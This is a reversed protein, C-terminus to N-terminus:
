HQGARLEDGDFGLHQASRSAGRRHRRHENCPDHRRPCLPDCRLRGRDAPLRDGLGNRRCAWADGAGARAHQWQGNDCGAESDYFWVGGPTRREPHQWRSQDSSVEGRRVDEPLRRDLRSFSGSVNVTANPGFVVGSPNILYLNAGTINSQIKGDISSGSGGTVRSIVNSIPGTSGASTFTASEPTPTHSLSFQGFSQFLNSAVQKGLNASISYNPGVLTQAPSFRGDVTIHQAWGLNPAFAIALISGVLPLHDIPRFSLLFASILRVTRVM